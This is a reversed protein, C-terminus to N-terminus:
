ILSITLPPRYPGQLFPNELLHDSFSFAVPSENFEFINTSNCEAFGLLHFAMHCGHNCQQNQTAQDHTNKNQHFYASTDEKIADALAEPSTVWLSTFALSFAIFMAILRNKILHM